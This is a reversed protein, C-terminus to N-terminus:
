KPFLFTAVARAGWEPGDDPSVAYVRGQVGLSVRQGGFNFVRSVGANIPVTWEDAEWDYTSEANVTIQVSNPFTHSIFPQLFTQNVDPREDDGGGTDAYSWIHNALAGYTWGGQQRLIVATPGVGWKETGLGPDTATPWLFAPGVGWTIGNVPQSPSFFFSQLTDSLGFEDDLTAAPAELYVVPVITRVILNWDETLSFPIVPQINLTYKSADDPGFCCDYNFQFPVSILSSIPNALQKALDAESGGASAQAPAGPAEAAAMDAPEAQAWARAAIAQAEEPTLERTQANASAAAAVLATAAFVGRM